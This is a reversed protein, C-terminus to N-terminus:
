KEFIIIGNTENNDIQTADKKKMSSLCKEAKQKMEKGNRTLPHNYKINAELKGSNCEWEVQVALSRDGEIKKKKSRYNLAKCGFYVNPNDKIYEKISVMKDVVDQASDVKDAILIYEAVGSKEIMEGNVQADRKIEELKEGAYVEYVQEKTMKRMRGSLNGQPKNFLEFRWGLTMSGEEIRGKSDKYLLPVKEFKESIGSISKEIITQWNKGFIQEAREKKMKNELFDANEKKYSIKIERIDYESKALVYIDTKPEGSKGNQPRPKGAMKVVYEKGEFMFKSGVKFHQRIIEEAKIFDAMEKDGRIYQLINVNFTCRHDLTMEVNKIIEM